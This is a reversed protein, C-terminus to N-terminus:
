ETQYEPHPGHDAPFRFDRPETVRAFGALAAADDNGVGDSIDTLAAIPFQPRSQQWWLAGGGLVLSVVVLLALLRTTLWPLRVEFM